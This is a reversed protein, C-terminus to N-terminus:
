RLANPASRHGKKIAQENQFTRFMTLFTRFLDMFAQGKQGQQDTAHFTTRFTQM